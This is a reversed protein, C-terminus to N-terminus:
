AAVRALVHDVIRGAVDARHGFATEFGAFEVRDNVELVLLRGARDEVLDVGSIEAGVAAAAAVALRRIEPTVAAPEVRAGRAANARWGDSRRCVVGIVESGVVIVRLDRGVDPVLEQVYVVQAQPAPLAAIYELVTSAAHHDPILSVLRGWSGVLPKVVAPYGLEDMAALAAAPTLALTTQPTPLGHDRLALSTRWKDGCVEVAAASNVVTVGAAELARAAYGARTRSIERNLVVPGDGGRPSCLSLRLQRTDIQEYAISRRRLEVMIQKEEVRVRSALIALTPDAM